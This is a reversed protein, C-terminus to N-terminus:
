LKELESKIEKEEDILHQIFHLYVKDNIAQNTRLLFILERKEHYENEIAILACQKAMHTDIFSDDNYDDFEVSYFKKFLEEAKQTLAEM